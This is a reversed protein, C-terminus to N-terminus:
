LLFKTEKPRDRNKFLSSLCVVVVVAVLVDVFLLTLLFFLLKARTIFKQINRQRGRCFLLTFHGLEADDESCPPRRSIKRVEMQFQVGDNCIESLCTKLAMPTGFLDLFERIESAFYLNM